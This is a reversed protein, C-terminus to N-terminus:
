MSGKRVIKLGGRTLTDLVSTDQVPAGEIYLFRLKKHDKLASVDVVPTNRISLKELSNALTKKFVQVRVPRCLGKASGQLDVRVGEARLETQRFHRQVVALQRVDNM